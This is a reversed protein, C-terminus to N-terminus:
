CYQQNVTKLKLFEAIEFDIQCDIDVSKEREMLFAKTEEDLFKKEKMFTEISLIYIAGNIRYYNKSNNSAANEQIKIAFNKMNGNKKLSNILVPDHGSACVSILSNLPQSREFCNIANSIDAFCRLPSTPQLLVIHSFDRYTKLVNLVVDASSSKDSALTEEREHLDVGPLNSIALIEPCDSSVVTKSIFDCQLSAEITWQILPKGAFPLINKRPLRKSGGRAPVIALYKHECTM